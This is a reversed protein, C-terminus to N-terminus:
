GAKKEELVKKMRVANDWYMNYLAGANDLVDRQVNLHTSSHCNSCAMRMKKEGEVGNGRTRSRTESRSHM